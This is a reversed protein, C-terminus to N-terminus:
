LAKGKALSVHIKENPLATCNLEPQAECVDSLKVADMGKPFVDNLLKNIEFPPLNMTQSFRAIFQERSFVVRDDIVSSILPVQAVLHPDKNQLATIVADALQKQEARIPAAIYDLSTRAITEDASLKGDHRTDADEFISKAMRKRRKYEGDNMGNLHMAM